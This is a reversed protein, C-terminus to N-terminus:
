RFQPARYVRGEQPTVLGRHTHFQVPLTQRGRGDPKPVFVPFHLHPGQSYGTNGSYGLLEGARVAQGVAVVAGEPMLHYYDALTGDPHLLQIFNGKQWLARDPRGERFHEVVQIVLGERAALVPTGLSCAFDLCYRNEGTHSFSGGYCQVVLLEQDAPFPLQYTARPDHKARYDGLRWDFQYRYNWRGTAGARLRVLDASSHPPIVVTRPLQHDAFMNTFTARIQVTSPAPSNNRATLSVTEHTKTEVVEVPEAVVLGFLLLFLLALPVLGM